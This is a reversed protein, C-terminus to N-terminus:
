DFVELPEVSELGVQNWCYPYDRRTAALKNYKDLAEQASKGKFVHSGYTIHDTAFVTHTIEYLDQVSKKMEFQRPDPPQIISKAVNLAITFKDVDKPSLCFVDPSYVSDQIMQFHVTGNYVGLFMERFPKIEDIFKQVVIKSSM